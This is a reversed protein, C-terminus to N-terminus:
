SQEVRHKVLSLFSVPCFGVNGFSDDYHYHIRATMFRSQGDKAPSKSRMYTCLSFSHQVAKCGKGWGYARMEVRTMELALGLIMFDALALRAFM